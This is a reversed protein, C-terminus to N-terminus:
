NILQDKVSVNNNKKKNQFLQQEDTAIHLNQPLFILHVECVCILLEESSRRQEILLVNQLLDLRESESGVEEPTEPGNHIGLHWSNWEAIPYAYMFDIILISYYGYVM